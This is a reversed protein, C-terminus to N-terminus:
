VCINMAAISLLLRFTSAVWIDILQHIALCFTNYGYFPINNLWLLLSPSICAAVLLFRSTMISLSLLWDYFFLYTIRTTLYRSYVFEYLCFTVHHNGPVSPLCSYPILTYSLKTQSLHLLRFISPLLQQM